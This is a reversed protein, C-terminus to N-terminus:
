IIYSRVGARSDRGPPREWLRSLWGPWLFHDFAGEEGYGVLGAEEVEGAREALRPDLHEGGAAGGLGDPVGAQRHDVHRVVGAEGLHQVAAHLGQVGLDVAADQAPAVQGLMHGGHLLVADTVDVQDADVQVREDGGDGFGATGQFVGDLVDVDAARGHDAGRGLVVGEDGDDGVRAWPM